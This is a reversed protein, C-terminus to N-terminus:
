DVTNLKEESLCINGHPNGLSVTGEGTPLSLTRHLETLTSRLKVTNEMPRDSLRAM